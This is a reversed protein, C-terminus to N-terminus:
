GSQAPDAPELGGAPHHVRTGRGARRGAPGHAREFAASRTAGANLVANVFLATSAFHVTSM